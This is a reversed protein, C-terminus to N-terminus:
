PLIVCGPTQDDVIVRQESAAEGGQHRALGIELRGGFGAVLVLRLDRDRVEREVDRQDVHADRGGAADDDDLLEARQRRAALDERQRHDVLRADDGVHQTGAGGAVRELGLGGCLQHIRHPGDRLALLVQGGADRAVRDFALEGAVCWVGSAQRVRRSRSTNSSSM